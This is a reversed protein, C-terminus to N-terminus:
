GCTLLGVEGTLADILTRGSMCPGFAIGPVFDYLGQEQDSQYSTNDVKINAEILFNSERMVDHFQNLNQGFLWMWCEDHHNVGLSGM